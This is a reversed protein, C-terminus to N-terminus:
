DGNSECEFYNSSFADDPIVPKHFYEEPESITRIDRLVKYKIDKRELRFFNRLNKLIEDISANEKRIDKNKKEKTPQPEFLSKVNKLYTSLVLNRKKNM